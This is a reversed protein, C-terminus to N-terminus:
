GVRRHGPLVLRDGDGGVLGVHVDVQGAPRGLVERRLEDARGTRQQLVLHQEAGVVRQQGRLAPEAVEVQELDLGLDPGLDELVVRGAQEPEALRGRSVARRPEGPPLAYPPRVACTRSRTPWSGGCRAPSPAPRWAGSAPGCLPPTRPTTRSDTCAGPGFWARRGGRRRRPWRPSTGRCTGPWRDPRTPM